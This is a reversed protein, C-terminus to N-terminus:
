ARKIRSICVLSALLDLYSESVSFEAGSEARRQDANERVFDLRTCRAALRAVIDGCTQM